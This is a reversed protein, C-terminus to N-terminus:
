ILVLNVMCPNEKWNPHLVILIMIGAYCTAAWELSLILTLVYMFTALPKFGPHTDVHCSTAPDLDPHTDVHRATAPDLEARTYTYDRSPRSPITRKMDPTLGPEVNSYVETRQDYRKIEPDSTARPLGHSRDFYEESQDEEELIQVRLCAQEITSKVELLEEERMVTVCRQQLQFEKKLQQLRLKALAEEVKAEKGKVTLRTSAKSVSNSSVKSATLYSGRQSASDCTDVRPLVQLSELWEWARQVLVQYADRQDDFWTTAQFIEEPDDLRRVYADHARGFSIFASELNALKVRFAESEGATMSTEIEIEIRTVHGKYGSRYTKLKQMLDHRYVGDQSPSVGQQDQFSMRAYYKRASLVEECNKSHNHVATAAVTLFLVVFPWLKFENLWIRNM